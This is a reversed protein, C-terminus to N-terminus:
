SCYHNVTYFSYFYKKKEILETFSGSEVIKGAKLVLIEDCQELLNPNLRHTIMICGIEKLNLVTNEIKNEMLVDLSATTEDFIIYKAGTLLTRALGIRQREGGSIHGGDESLVTQLGEPLNSVYEDLGSM